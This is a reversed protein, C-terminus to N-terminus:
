RRSRSDDGGHEKMERERMEEIIRVARGLKPSASRAALDRLASLDLSALEQLRMEELSAQANGHPTLHVLDLLAKERTAVMAVTGPAVETPRYSHFFGPKLHRYTFAGAPTDWSWPRQTTVSTTVPVHEPIMGYFALASQLSVYSAKVLQNAVVFPHTSGQRYEEALAYVGRRLQVVKGAKKWRSLQRRVDRPDVNGTILLGATFIPTNRTLRVLDLFKM